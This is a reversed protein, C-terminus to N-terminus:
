KFNRLEKSLRYCFFASQVIKAFINQVSNQMSAKFPFKCMNMKQKFVCKPNLIKAIKKERECKSDSVSKKFICLKTCTACNKALVIQIKAFKGKKQWILLTSGLPKEFVYWINKDFPQLTM